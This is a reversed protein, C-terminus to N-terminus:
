PGVKAKEGAPRVRVEHPGDGEGVDTTGDVRERPGTQHREVAITSNQQDMM